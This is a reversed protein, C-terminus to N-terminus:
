RIEPLTLVECVNRRARKPGSIQPVWVSVLGFAEGGALAIEERRHEADSTASAVRDIFDKIIQLARDHGVTSSRVAVDIEHPILVDAAEGAVFTKRTDRSLDVQRTAMGDHLLSSKWGAGLVHGAHHDARGVKAEGLLSNFDKGARDAFM